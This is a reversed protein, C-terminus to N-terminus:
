RRKVCGRDRAGGCCTCAPARLRCGLQSKTESTAVIPKHRRVNYNLPRQREFHVRRQRGAALFEALFQAGAPMRRPSPRQPANIPAELAQEFMSVVDNEANNRSKEDIAM